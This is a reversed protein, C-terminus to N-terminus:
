VEKPNSFKFRSMFQCIKRLSPNFSYFSIGKIQAGHFSNQVSWRLTTLQNNWLDTYHSGAMYSRSEPQLSKGRWLILLYAHNLTIKVCNNEGNSCLSGVKISNISINLGMKSIMKENSQQTLSKVTFNRNFKLSVFNQFSRSLYIKFKSQIINVYCCTFNM